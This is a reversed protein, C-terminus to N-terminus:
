GGNKGGEDCSLMLPPKAMAEGRVDSSPKLERVIARAQEIESTTVQVGFSTVNIQQAPRGDRMSQHFKM